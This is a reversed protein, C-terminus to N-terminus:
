QALAANDVIKTTTAVAVVPGVNLSAFLMWAFAISADVSTCFQGLDHCPRLCDYISNYRDYCPHDLYFRLSARGSSACAAALVLLALVSSVLRLLPAFLLSISIPSYM